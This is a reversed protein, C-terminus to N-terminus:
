RLRALVAPGVQTVDGAGTILVLTGESAHELVADTVAELRPEYVVVAGAARAADAVLQGSIGPIPDESSGFVDTVIVVEAAAAAVGLDQGFRATRSYRHPQVVLVIRDHGLTRAGALTARLETPHHAYDDIVVIGNVEGLRQFRRQAGQFSAMAEAALTLDGGLEHVAALAATANRLNHLGPVALRLQAVVENDRRVVSRGASSEDPVLRWDSGASTGYTLVRGGTRQALEASGPDDRCLLALGDPAMRALFADFARHVDATDAFEDPHDLEVNTVVALDPEYVLFSRDSEDAEAVFVPDVGAHANTGVENLSGGISFSPDVGGGQLGVVLMSTTTTKGHTGAVLVRKQGVMLAALLEARRLVELGTQRAHVVEPNDEPVATSRVLFDADGIATADHGVTVVAGLARLGELGRSDKLDTGSVHHGRQLLIRALGSMGAGGLGVFHVRQPQDFHVTM